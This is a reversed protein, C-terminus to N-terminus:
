GGEALLQRARAADRHMQAILQTPGRFRREGRQRRVFEVRLHQGYLDEDFDFLYVELVREGTGQFTPRVGLSAVGSAARSPELPSVGGWSVRTAYVGNPPLTVPDDFRLNATPYGLERGRGDGHVVEGIVAYPRGLLGRADALRGATILNRIRSSSVRHGGREVTPVRVMRFGMERALLGAVEISGSQERGFASEPTMVLAALERGESLRDLFARPELLAFSRDFAQIVVRDVGAAALRALGERPDCLLTPASGGLVEQPHPTFTLAVAEADMATAKRTLTRLLSQHGRHVGDFIGLAL